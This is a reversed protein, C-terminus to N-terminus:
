TDVKWDIYMISSFPYFVGNVTVGTAPTTALNHGPGDLDEGPELFDERIWSVTEGNHLHAFYTIETRRKM